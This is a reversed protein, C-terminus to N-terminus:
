VKLVWRKVKPITTCIMLKHNDVMINNRTVTTTSSVTGNSSGASNGYGPQDINNCVMGGNIYVDCRDKSSKKLKINYSGNEIESIIETGSDKTVDSINRVWADTGSVEYEFLPSVEAKVAGAYFYVYVGGM